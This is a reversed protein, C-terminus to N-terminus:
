ATAWAIFDVHDPCWKLSEQTRTQSKQGGSKCKEWILKDKVKNDCGLWNCIGENTHTTWGSGGCGDMHPIVLGPPLPYGALALSLLLLGLALAIPTIHM